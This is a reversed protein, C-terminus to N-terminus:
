ASGFTIVGRANRGAELDAFAQPAQDIAYTQTVLGGLDLKGRRDLDLLKPFDVRPNVDGYMSGKITKGQLPLLLANFSIQETLKGVGVVTLTGGRRTAEYAQQVVKPVGIVEFAYDVGLGHTLERIQAVPDGAGASVLDTAGFRAALELKNPALDVAIIRDAGALRAGQIVSLGVGGCGFVAVTSGPTVKATKIAAGVGTTVGCGVLAATRLPVDRDIPVVSIGPCVVEEAMNGLATMAALQRDGLRLRSTGDLQMGGPPLATCLNAQGNLCFFCRGCNPVFSMIVHDGAKVHTVGPGVEEVVGAGEHGLVCPLPMPITGNIVSLDSHCVGCAAM